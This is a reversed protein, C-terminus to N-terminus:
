NFKNVNVKKCYKEIPCKSCSPKIPKCITKGFLVLYDNLEIWYKKPIIKRLEIETEEPKKTKVLGLRNSIRHVHTDVAIGYKKFAKTIVINATKRGVGPLKLLKDLNDPVEGNFENILIKALEKLRKAKVKYFGSPYLVKELDDLPTNLLDNANKVIKFLNKTVYETTEDKTRQSIICGVLVYFPNSEISIRDMLTKSNSNYFERLAEVIKEISM